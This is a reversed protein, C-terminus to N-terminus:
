NCAKTSISENSKYKKSWIDIKNFIETKRLM